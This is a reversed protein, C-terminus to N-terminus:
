SVELELLLMHSGELEVEFVGPVDATFMIDTEEGAAVDFFLDYGHVHVLVEEDSVVVFRATSGLEVELTPPGDVVEGNEVVIGIPEDEVVTTTTTSTTSTTTSDPVSDDTTVTTQPALTTTTAQSTSTTTDSATEACAGLVLTVVIAVAITM